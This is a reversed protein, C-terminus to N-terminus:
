EAGGKRAKRERGKGPGAIVAAAIALAAVATERDKPKVKKPLGLMARMAEAMEERSAAPKKQDSM